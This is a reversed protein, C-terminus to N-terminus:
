KTEWWPEEQAEYIRAARAKRPLREWAKVADPDCRAIDASEILEELPVSCFRCGARHWYGAKDDVVAAAGRMRRLWCISAAVVEAVPLYTPRELTM